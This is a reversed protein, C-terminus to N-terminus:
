LPAPEGPSPWGGPPSQDTPDRPPLPRKALLPGFRQEEPKKSSGGSELQDEGPSLGQEGPGGPHAKVLTRTGHGVRWLPGGRKGRASCLCGTMRHGGAAEARTFTGSPRAELVYRTIPGKGPDGSSWHIAIASSYRVIIPVGPPGPAGTCVCVCVCVRVCPSCPSAGSHPWTGWGDGQAGARPGSYLVGALTNPVGGRAMGGLLTDRGPRFSM